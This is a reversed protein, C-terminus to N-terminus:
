GAPLPWIAEYPHFLRWGASRRLQRAIYATDIGEWVANIPALRGDWGCGISRRYVPLGFVAAATPVRYELMGLHKFPFDLYREFFEKTLVELVFLCQKPRRRYGFATAVAKRFEEYDTRHEGGPATWQWEPEFTTPLTRYGSFYLEGKGLGPLVAGIDGLVLLDWQVVAVSDWELHRGRQDFWDLLLLDGEMWKHDEGSGYTDPYVWFDDLLDGLGTLFRTAGKGPGGYLGYVPRGPNHHRILELHNRTVALDKYFWFLLALEPRSAPEEPV